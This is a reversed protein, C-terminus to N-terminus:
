FAILGATLDRLLSTDLHDLPAGAIGMGGRQLITQRLYPVLRLPKETEPDRLSGDEFCLFPDFAPEGGPELEIYIPGVGAYGIKM